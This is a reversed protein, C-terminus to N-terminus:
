RLHVKPSDGDDEPEALHSDCISDIINGQKSRWKLGFEKETEAAKCVKTLKSRSEYSGYMSMLLMIFIVWAGPNKQFSVNLREYWDEITKKVNAM